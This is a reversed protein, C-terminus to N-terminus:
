VAVVSWNKASGGNPDAGRAGNLMMCGQIASGQNHVTGFVVLPFTAKTPSTLVHEGNHYYQITGDKGVM